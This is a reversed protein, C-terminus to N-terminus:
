SLVLKEIVKAVGDNDNTDTVYNAVSKLRDTANGMAVGMGAYEIMSLDNENDGICITEEATVGYMEGLIKVANGKSIGKSMVEFNNDFSAVVSVEMTNQIKNRLEKLKPIEEDESIVVIKLISEYEKEILEYWNEVIEIKVKREEPLNQNWKEYNRSSYIIKETYIKEWTFLHPYFGGDKIIEVIKHISERPLTKMYIVEDRDKERIYAGNSAIVPAKSEIIDAFVLASTFIRGTCVVLKIGKEAARRLAEKSRDSITKDSSLLTGDMDMAIM